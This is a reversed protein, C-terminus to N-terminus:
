WGSATRNLIDAAIKGVAQSIGEDRTESYSGWETFTEEWLTKRKKVDEFLVKVELTVRYDSAQENQNYQGARDEVRLLSGTLRADANGAGAIKLTNDKIIAAVLLDTIQRDIGFEPTKNEFLPIFVTKIDSPLASGSFSYVGCRFAALSLALVLGLVARNRTL